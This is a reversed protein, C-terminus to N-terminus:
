QGSTPGHSICASIVTRVESTSTSCYPGPQHAYRYQLRYSTHFFFPPSLFRVIKATVGGHESKMVMTVRKGKKESQAEGGVLKVNASITGHTTELRLNNRTEDTEDKGLPPLLFAPIDLTPDITYSEKIDTHTRSISLHNSPRRLIQSSCSPDQSSEAYVPRPENKHDEAVHKAELTDTQKDEVVLM